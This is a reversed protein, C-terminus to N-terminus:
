TIVIKPSTLTKRRWLLLLFTIICFVIAGTCVYEVWKFLMASTLLAILAGFRSMALRISESFTQVQSSVMKALAGVLFVEDMVVVIAFLTGWTIWLIVNLALSPRNHFKFYIFIAEMLALCSISILSFIFITKDSFTKYSLVFLIIASICGFGFVIGNLETIGMGLVDVVLLPLWMDFAVMWYWLCFTFIMVLSADVNTCIQWAISGVSSMEQDTDSDLLPSEEDDYNQRQKEQNKLFLLMSATAFCDSANFSHSYMGSGELKKLTISKTRKHKVNPSDKRPTDEYIVNIATEELSGYGHNASNSLTEVESQASSKEKQFHSIKVENNFNKKVELESKLDYERSIDSVTFYTFVQTFSFAVAMYLGPVNVYTVHWAGIWFDVTTFMFNVGPGMIFGLAFAMGMISFKGLVEDAPYCRAVEGSIVSRLPGDFGSILRGALPLWPSFPLAYIINGIVVFYNCVLFTRRIKRTRDVWRGVVVSVLVCALLYSASILSYFIKPSNTDILTKIYLWLTLFTVSYEMGLMLCELVCARTTWKRKLKM